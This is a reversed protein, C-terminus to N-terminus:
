LSVWKGIVTGCIIAADTARIIKEPWDPNLPRLYTESNEYIIQKFTAEESGSIHVVVCDKNEPKVQPDVFIIDGDEFSPKGGPNFMSIGRVSLAFTSDSHKVPCPLWKEAETPDAVSVWAGAAVWSIVPIMGQVSMSEQIIGAEHYQDLYMFPMDASSEISRAKREGFPRKLNLLASLEGQNIGTKEIFLAQKGQFYDDIWRKLNASRVQTLDKMIGEKNSLTFQNYYNQLLRYICLRLSDHDKFDLSGYSQSKHHNSLNYLLM